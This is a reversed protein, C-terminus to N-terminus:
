GIRKYGKYEIVMTRKDYADKMHDPPAISPLGIEAFSKYRREPKSSISAINSVKYRDDGIQIWEAGADIAKNIREGKENNVQLSEGNYFTLIM